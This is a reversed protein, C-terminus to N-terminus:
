NPHKPRGLYLLKIMENHILGNTALLEEGYLDIKRGGFDTVLGGAEELIVIGGAIDWANLGLEWFGDFRGCAVYCLDLAASGDRRVSQARRLFNEFHIINEEFLNTKEYVFGTVLHSEELADIKSVRIKKGNLYAGRGEQAYFLEERVPNYVVGLQLEGKAQLAISVAFHPYSHAYNTTGDLPDVLWLYSSSEKKDRGTEEGLISHGPFHKSITEKIVKESLLDVKTVISKEGKYEIKGVNDLNSRLVEGAKKVAELAVELYNKL